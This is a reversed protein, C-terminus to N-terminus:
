ALSNKENPKNTYNKFYINFSTGSGPKSIVNVKGKNMEIMNKVLHLGIGNGEHKKEIRNFPKFLNKGYKNLDIGIGNDKIEIVTFGNEVKSSINIELKKEPSRYTISNKILNKFISEAYVPIYYITEAKSFDNTIEIDLDKMEPDVDELIKALLHDLCIKQPPLNKKEQVEIMEVIGRVTKDLLNVSLSLNNLLIDKQNQYDDRMLLDALLSINSLPGRFDHAAVHLFNDLVENMKKLDNNREELQNTREKVKIELQNNLVELEKQANFLDIFTKVKARLIEPNVPKFIYDLGGADFGRLVNVIDYDIATLFIVPINKTKSNGKLIKAVEYGDIVPMQVDLLILAIDEKLAIKLANEGSSSLIFHYSDTELLSKLSYLNDEKDDVILINIDKTIKM